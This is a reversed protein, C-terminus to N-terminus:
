KEILIDDSIDIVRSLPFLLSLTTGQNEKSKIQISGNHSKMVKYCYSLGLGFNNKGKKTSYFPSIVKDISDKPIGVGNDKVSISISKNNIIETDISIVGQKEIAEIANIVLNRLVESIHVADIEMTADIKSENTIKIDKGPPFLSSQNIVKNVIESLIVPEFNMKFLKLENVKRTFELLNKCSGKIISLKKDIGPSTQEVDLITDVCINITSVENKIAHSVISMRNIMTDITSDLSYRELKIRIGLLGFKLSLTVFVVFEFFIIWINYAWVNKFGLAVSVYSTFYICLSSPIAAISTLIKQKRYVDDKEIFISIILLVNAAITYIGVWWSLVRYDPRFFPTLPYLLFMALSPISLLAVIVKRSILKLHINLFNTFLLVFVLFAYTALYHYLMDAIGKFILVSLKLKENGSNQIFPMANIKLIAAVGGFGNLFLCASGWWAWHVKPNAYILLVSIIWLLIFVIFM